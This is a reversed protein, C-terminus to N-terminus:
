VPPTIYKLMGSYNFEPWSGQFRAAIWLSLLSIMGAAKKM